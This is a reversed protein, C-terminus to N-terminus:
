PLFRSGPADIGGIPAPPAAEAEPPGAAMVQVPRRVDQRGLNARFAAAARAQSAVRPGRRRNKYDEIDNVLIRDAQPTKKARPGETWAPLVQGDSPDTRWSPLGAFGGFQAVFDENFASDGSKDIDRGFVVQDVISNAMPASPLHGRGRARAAGPMGAEAHWSPRGAFGTFMSRFEEDFQEEGSFDIDRGYVVTDLHSQMNPSNPMLRVTRQRPVEKVVGAAPLDVADPANRRTSRASLPGHIHGAPPATRVLRVTRSGSSGGSRASGRPWSDGHSAWDGKPVVSATTESASSSVATAAFAIAPDSLASTASSRKSRSFQRRTQTALWAAALASASNAYHGPGPGATTADSVTSPPLHRSKVSIHWPEAMSTTVKLSMDGDHDADTFHGENRQAAPPTVAAAAIAARPQHGQSRTGSHSSGRRSGSRSGAGSGQLINEM